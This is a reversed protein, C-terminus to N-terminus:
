TGRAARAAARAVIMARLKEKLPDPILTGGRKPGGARKPATDAEVVDASVVFASEDGEIAEIENIVERVGHVNGAMVEIRERMADAEAQTVAFLRGGLVVSGSQATVTAKDTTVEIEPDMAMRMAIDREIEPDAVLRNVVQRVGPVDVALRTAISKMIASRVNGDLHIVGDVASVEIRTNTQRIPDYRWLAGEVATALSRAIHESPHEILHRQPMVVSM